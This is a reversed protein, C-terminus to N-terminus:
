KNHAQLGLYLSYVKKYLENIEHVKYKLMNMVESDYLGKGGQILDEFEFGTESVIKQGIGSIHKLNEALNLIDKVNIKAIQINMDEITDFCISDYEKINYSENIKEIGCEKLLQKSIKM